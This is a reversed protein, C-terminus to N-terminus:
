KSVLVISANRPTEGGLRKKRGDEESKGDGVEKTRGKMRRRREGVGKVM